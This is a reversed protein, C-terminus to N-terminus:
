KINDKEKPESIIVINHPSTEFVWGDEDTIKCFAGDVSVDIRKAQITYAPNTMGGM